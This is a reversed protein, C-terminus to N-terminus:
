RKVGFLRKIRNVIRFKIEEFATCSLRKWVMEDYTPPKFMIVNQERAESIEVFVRYFKNLERQIEEDRFCIVLHRHPYGPQMVVKNLIEMWVNERTRQKAIETYEKPYDDSTIIEAQYQTNNM